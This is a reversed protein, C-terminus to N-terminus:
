QPIEEIKITSLVATALPSDTKGSQEIKCDFSVMSEVAMLEKVSIKLTLGKEFNQTFTKYKNVSMIFGITPEKGEVKAAIGSLAAITQAMYEFGVWVPVGNRELDYFFSHESIDVECAASHEEPDCEVARSLLCMKGKHPVLEEIPTNLYLNNKM